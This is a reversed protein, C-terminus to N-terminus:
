EWKMIQNGEQQNEWRGVNIEIKIQRIEMSISNSLM